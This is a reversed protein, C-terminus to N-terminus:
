ERSHKCTTTPPVSDGQLHKNGQSEQLWAVSIIITVWLNSIHLVLCRPAWGPSVLTRSDWNMSNQNHDEPESGSEWTWDPCQIKKKLGNSQSEWLSPYPSILLLAKGGHRTQSGFCTMHGWPMLVRREDWEHGVTTCNNQLKKIFFSLLRRQM